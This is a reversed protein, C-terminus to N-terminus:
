MRVVILKNQKQLERCLQELKSKSTNTKVLESSVATLWLLMNRDAEWLRDVLNGNNLVWGRAQAAQAVCM